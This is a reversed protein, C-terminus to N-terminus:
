QAALFSEFLIPSNNIKAPASMLRFSILANQELFWHLSVENAVAAKPESKDKYVIFRLAAKAEM